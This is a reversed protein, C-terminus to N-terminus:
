SIKDTKLNTKIDEPNNEDSSSNESGTHRTALFALKKKCIKATLSNMGFQEIAKYYREQYFQQSKKTDMVVDKM